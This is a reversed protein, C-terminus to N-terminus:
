RGRSIRAVAAEPDYAPMTFLHDNEGTPTVRIREVLPPTLGGNELEVSYEGAPLEMTCPTIREEEPLRPVDVASELPHVKVRAWPLANFRVPVKVPSPREAAAANGPAPEIAATPAPERRFSALWVMGSALVFLSGAGIARNRWAWQRFRDPEGRVVQTPSPGTLTGAEALRSVPFSRTAGAATPVPTPVPTPMTDTAEVPLPTIEAVAAGRSWSPVWFPTKHPRARRLAELMEGATQYRDDPDKALARSLVPLVAPPIAAAAPGSLPPPEELHKLITAVPTDGRFPVDGTFLEFIVVGLAYIDSRMDVEGARAQEPSLYEPTGVIHGTATVGRVPPEDGAMVKKAIGFDMLRVVGHADQMANPTKLDRHVIGADHIAQLGKTMQIAIELAESAPLTGRERILAKLDIGDILEMSIYHRGADEGYEYIRCVNRHTVKRALRIESRFRRRVDDSPGVGEHLIKFAVDEELIRDRAMYVTGMGGKGLRGRIEYRNAVITGKTVPTVPASLAAGCAFCAGADADSESSCSPCRM